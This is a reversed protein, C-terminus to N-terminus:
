KSKRCTMAKIFLVYSFVQSFNTVSYLSSCVDRMKMKLYYSSFLLTPILLFFYFAIGTVMWFSPERRLDLVKPTSFVERFYVLCPIILIFSEFIVAWEAVHAIEKMLLYYLLYGILLGDLIWVVRIIRHSEILRTLFYSFYLLEFVTFLNFVITVKSPYLKMVVEALVNGFCYIPFSKMYGPNYNRFCFLLSLVLLVIEFTILTLYSLKFITTLM